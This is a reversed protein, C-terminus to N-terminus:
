DKSTSAKEIQKNGEKLTRPFNIGDQWFSKSERLEWKDLLRKPKLVSLIETDTLSSRRMNPLESIYIHWIFFIVPTTIKM